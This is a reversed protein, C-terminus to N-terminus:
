RRWRRTMGRHEETPVGWKGTVPNEVNVIKGLGALSQMVDSDSEVVPLAYSLALADGTDPSRKIRARIEDKAELVIRQFNDPFYKPATLDGLLLPDNPLQLKGERLLERVRWWCEARLNAFRKRQLAGRAVNVGILPMGNRRGFDLLGAGIAIEDVYCKSVQYERLEMQVKDALTALDLSQWRKISVVKNGHRIVLVSSDGGMRAPDLGGIVEAHEQELIRDQAELVWSLKILQDEAQEPAQGMVKAYFIPQPLIWKSLWPIKFAGATDRPVETAWEEAREEIWRRTVAGPILEKGEQVNPHEFDSIMIHSWNSSNCADWFPGAQEIPNGIALIRCNDGAALGAAADWILRPLGAAEDMVVLLHPSHYGQISAIDEDSSRRPSVGIAFHEPSVEWRPSDLILGPLEAKRGVARIYRFLINQVQSWNPAIVIVKADDFTTMWWCVIAAAAVTKGVAFGSAAVTNHNKEVSRCIEELKGWMQYGLVETMFKVPDTPWGNNETRKEKIFPEIADEFNDTGLIMRAVLEGDLYPMIKVFDEVGIKKTPPRASPNPRATRAM